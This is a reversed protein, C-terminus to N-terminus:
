NNEKKFKEIGRTIKPNLSANEPICPNTDLDWVWIDDDLSKPVLKLTAMQQEKVIQVFFSRRIKKKLM